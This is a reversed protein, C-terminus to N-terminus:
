SVGETYLTETDKPNKKPSAECLDIAKQIEGLFRSETQPTTDGKPPRLFSNAGSVLESELAGVRFLERFEISQALANHYTANDPESAIAKDLDAIAQDYELNYFHNSATGNPGLVPQPQGLLVLAALLGIGALRM